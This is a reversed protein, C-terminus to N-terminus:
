GAIKLAALDDTRISSLEGAIRGLPTRVADCLYAERM